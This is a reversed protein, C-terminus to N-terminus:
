YKMKVFINDILEVKFCAFFMIFRVNKTLYKKVASFRCEGELGKVKVLGIM